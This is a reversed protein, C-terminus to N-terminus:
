KSAQSMFVKLVQEEDMGVLPSFVSLRLSGSCTSCLVPTQIQRHLFCQVLM